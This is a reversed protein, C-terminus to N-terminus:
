QCVHFGPLSSSPGCTGAGGCDANGNAPDCFIRNDSSDCSSQCSVDSYYSAAGNSVLTGCCFDGGCDFTDDCPIVLDGLVDGTCDAEGTCAYSHGASGLTNSKVCCIDAGSCFTASAAPGGCYIGPDTPVVGADKGGGSGADKDGGSGADGPGGGGGDKGSAAGDKGNGADSSGTSGGSSTGFLDPEDIGGCAGFVFISAFFLGISTTTKM